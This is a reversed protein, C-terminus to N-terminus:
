MKSRKTDASFDFTTKSPWASGFHKLIETFHRRREISRQDRRIVSIVSWYVIRTLTFILIIMWAVVGAALGNHKLHLMIMASSLMLDRRHSLRRVSGGGHHIIEGVPAFRLRWGAVGFRRCWDTEEGFFFFREDLLGIDRMANCRVMMFCGSIVEVDRETRRDWRRMQYRDLFRPWPLRSLGTTLLSINFLTPFQSCTPQLTGDTNLVRCGMVGLDPNMRMYEVSAQLVDGIVLTDSNLLLVFESRIAQLAQNNAAAFGVNEPNKVLIVKPFCSEVMEASGDDSANDVVVVEANIHPLHAYISALCEQLLRKTNWSVVIISLDM